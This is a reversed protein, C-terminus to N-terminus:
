RGVGTGHRGQNEVAQAEITDAATARAATLIDAPLAAAIGKTALTFATTAAAAATDPPIVLLKLDYRDRGTHLSILQADISRFWGVKVLHRSTQMRRPIHTWTDPHLGIRLIATGLRRELEAVLGPLEDSANDSYPWWAGDVAGRRCLAHDLRLRPGPPNVPPAPLLPAAPTLRPPLIQQLAMIALGTGAQADPQPHHFAPAVDVRSDM